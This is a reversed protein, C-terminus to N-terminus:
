LNLDEESIHNLYDDEGLGLLNLDQAPVLEILNELSYDEANLVVYDFLEEETVNQSWHEQEVVANNQYWWGTIGLIFMAAAAYYWSKIMRVTRPQIEAQANLDKSTLIKEVNESFYNVPVQLSSKDNFVGSVKLDNVTELTISLRNSFYDVPINMGNKLEPNKLLSDLKSLDIIQNTFDEFYDEPLGLNKKSSNLNEIDIIEDINKSDEIMKEKQNSM